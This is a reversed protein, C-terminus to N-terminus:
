ALQSQAAPEVQLHVSPSDLSGVGLDDDTLFSFSVGSCAPSVTMVAMSIVVLGQVPQEGPVHGAM